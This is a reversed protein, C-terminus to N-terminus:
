QHALVTAVFFVNELDGAVDRMVVTQGCLALYKGPQMVLVDNGVALRERDGPARGQQKLAGAVPRHGLLELFLPAQGEVHQLAETFLEDFRHVMKFGFADGMAVDLGLVDSDSFVAGALQLEHQEVERQAACRGVVDRGARM